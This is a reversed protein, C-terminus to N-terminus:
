TVPFDPPIQVPTEQKQGLTQSGTEHLIRVIGADGDVELLQGDQILTTAQSAGVVAPIGYERAIVATHSLLGGSDTVVAAVTAFFTTWPPATTAAVLIDGELLKDADAISHLVRATGRVKGPSGPNGRLV